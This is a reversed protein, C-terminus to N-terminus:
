RLLLLLSNLVEESDDECTKIDYRRVVVCADVSKRSVRQLYDLESHLVFPEMASIFDSM